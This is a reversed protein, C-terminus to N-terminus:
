INPILVLEQQNINIQNIRNQLDVFHLIQNKIVM